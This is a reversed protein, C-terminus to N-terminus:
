QIGTSCTGVIYDQVIQQFLARFLWQKLCSHHQQKDKSCHWVLFYVRTDVIAYYWKLILAFLEIDESWSAASQNSVM